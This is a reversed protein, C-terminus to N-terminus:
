LIPEEVNKTRQENREGGKLDLSENTNFLSQYYHNDIILDKHLGEAVVKGNQLVIIKDANQITSLRHAIIIRTCNMNTLINDIKQENISDLANTAEDLVLIKPKPALARAIAIRQKQGGSFNQGQESVITEYKMPISMIEDHIQAISAAHIVDNETLGDNHAKINEYISQNFLFPEQNVIGMQNRIFPKDLEKFSIGDYYIEGETPSHLGVLLNALTSKGSGSAGIIAVKEGQNINLTINKIVTESHKTYSFSVNKLQINGRLEKKRYSLSEDYETPTDVVDRIRRLYVKLQYFTDIQFILSNATSIFFTAISQFAILQGLTLSNDFVKPAGIWIVALPMFYTLGGSFSTIFGFIREKKVFAGAFDSYLNDWKSSITKEAGSIKIDQMGMISETQYSYLKTDKTLQDRNIEHMLSRFALIFIYLIITFGILFIALYLSQYIMYVFIVLLLFFDLVSKMIQNSLIQRISRLNSFRYLLDGSQRVQFFSYPVKLLHSFYERSMEYDLFKFMRISVENRLLNFIFYSVFTILIGQLFLSLLDTQNNLLMNDIIKQTFIPTILVFVQLIINILLMTAIMKPKQGLMRLYPKWLSKEKQFVFDEGPVLSLAYGSYHRSFQDPSMKQRGQAPDLIVYGKKSIKELVIFHNTDWFLILPLTVRELQDYAIKYCKSNFGLNQSVKYLDYLTNGDRGNGIRDRLEFIPIYKKYYASVMAICAIGCETQSMQEIFPVRKM